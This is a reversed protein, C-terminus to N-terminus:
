SFFQRLYDNLFRGQPDLRARVACFDDYGPYLAALEDRSKTHIKGWHPRGRYADFIPEVDAFFDRFPLRGDQHVSITVTPRGSATSLLADDAALTRYEVPWMVDGHKEQMRARVERFCEPGAEAPVSYEMEHFKMDRVSSIIHCSWGIREGEIDLLDSPEADTPNLTKMEMRDPKPFWFFEFHRNEEIRRDLQRLCDTPDEQWVREHLRYAPLLRLRAASIVGLLGLSVRAARLLEPNEDESCTV